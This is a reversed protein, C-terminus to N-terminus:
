VGRAFIPFSGTIEPVVVGKPAVAAVDVGVGFVLANNKRHVVDSEIWNM